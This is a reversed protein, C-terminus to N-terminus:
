LPAHVGVAESECDLEARHSEQPSENRIRRVDWSRNDLVHGSLEPDVPSREVALRKSLRKTTGSPELWDM